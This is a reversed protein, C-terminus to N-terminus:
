AQPSADFVDASTDQAVAASARSAFAAAIAKKQRAQDLHSRLLSAALMTDGAEIADLVRCHELALERRPLPREAQHYETLRRLRDLRQLVGIAVTNHSWRVLTAHFRSNSEFLEVAVLHKVDGNAIGMQERRLALLETRVPRFKTSMVCAPELALRVAYLDDYAELTDITPVFNWGYGTAKDVWGEDRARVMAQHVDSRGECLLRCLDAETVSDALKGEFRMRAIQRYVRDKGGQEVDLLSSPIDVADVALFYGKNRDYRAVGADRLYELVVRVPSRSTGVLNALEWERLHAEAQM